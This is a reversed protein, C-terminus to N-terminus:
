KDTANNMKEDPINSQMRIHLFSVKHYPYENLIPIETISGNKIEDFKTSESVMKEVSDTNKLASPITNERIKKIVAAM